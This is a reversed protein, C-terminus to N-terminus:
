EEFLDPFNHQVNTIEYFLAQVDEPADHKITCEGDSDTTLYASVGDFAQEMATELDLGNGYSDNLTFTEATQRLTKADM